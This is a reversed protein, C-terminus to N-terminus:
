SEAVKLCNRVFSLTLPKKQRLSLKDLTKLTDAVSTVRRDVFNLLCGLVDDAVTIGLDGAIKKSIKLLLDDKPPLIDVCPLAFLRSKLDELEINRLFSRSRCLILFFRNKEKAINIFNFIWAHNKRDAFDDFNDIVFNCEADYLDRPDGNLSEKLVYVAGATCAWLAALHTKGTGSEGCIIIGNGNWDPWGALYLIAERNEDGEVFDSWDLRVTGPFDLLEQQMM